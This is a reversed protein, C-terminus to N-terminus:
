TTRRRSEAGLKFLARANNRGIKIRDNESIELRDFWEVADITEEFPYDV